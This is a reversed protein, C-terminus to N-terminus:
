VSDTKTAGMLKEAIAVDAPALRYSLLENPKVWAIADHVRLEICRADPVTVYLCILKIRGRDYQYETETFLDGIIASIGFEEFLERRLAEEVTEGDEVKGGPFEWYGALSQGPKRRAIFVTEGSVAIAASVTIM